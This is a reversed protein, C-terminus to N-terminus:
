KKTKKDHGMIRQYSTMWEHVVNMMEQLQKETTDTTQHMQDQLVQAAENLATNLEETKQVDKRIDRFSEESSLSYGTWRKQDDTKFSVWEQRLRDETLRQMETVENIRRELKTNLELYTEQAKKAGRLAEDLKQVHTDINEAEKQFADYKQRWEMWARDRDVQAIAQKELFSTQAQKRELESAFLETFRNEINRIGNANLASIGRSEDIRKRLSTLEGQIDVVRKLDNKRSEESVKLAHQVDENSRAADEIRSKLDTQNNLIRQIEDARGKLQKKIEALAGSTILQGKNIEALEAQTKKVSNREKRMNAKENEEILKVFDARQKTLMAEFQEARKTASAIETVQKGLTKLQQSVAKVSTEFSILRESLASISDKSGRQQKELWNLRNVIQEFEM